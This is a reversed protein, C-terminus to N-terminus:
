MYDQKDLFNRCKAFWGSKIAQIFNLWELLYPRPLYAMGKVNLKLVNVTDVLLALKAEM